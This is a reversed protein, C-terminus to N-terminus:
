LNFLRLKVIFRNTSAGLQVNIFIKKYFRKTFSYRFYKTGLVHWTVFQRGIKTKNRWTWYGGEGTNTIEKIDYKEGQKPANSIIYNWMGNRLIQWRYWLIFKRFKSLRNFADYDADGNEDELLEYL